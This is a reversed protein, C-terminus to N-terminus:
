VTIDYKSLIKRAEALARDNKAMEEPDPIFFSAYVHAVIMMLTMLVFFILLAKITFM